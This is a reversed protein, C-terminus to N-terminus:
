IVYDVGYPYRQPRALMSNAEDDNKFRERVPDWYLKRPLKMAIHSLLCASNSRQAVEAPTITQQRSVICDLWNKHHEESEYLHIENPGIVSTLIKPDSAKFAESPKGGPVPDSATVGVNGRAVFIWGETGEFRVGNPYAGSVLMTVGNAYKASVEFDGHVDWLGETPFSANAEIEIPGTYETGMGWHAIDLHHAGWGTIMGAGFQECRLWGPRDNLNTQSHVRDLTYPVMPTSGLWMDYNLNSPIPMEKPNGGAPDGPLGVLIRQIEGIRGNRVLECARKFQPWPNVSRQQSGIQFIAGTRHITDSMVRGESITLSTPKQMYIDKGLLAAEMAPQAHWHDPTSIIVADIDKRLLMEKYDGYVQVDVYNPKNYREAYQKEIWQKGMEGRKSDVDAVAVVRAIENKMTEPLDHTMGIRGFGIQGIQIKNSPANKGFVSAPVITPFGTVALTAALAGKTGSKMFGRRSLKNNSNEKM